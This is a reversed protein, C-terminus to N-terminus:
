AHFGFRAGNKDVEWLKRVARNALIAQRKMKIMEPTALKGPIGLDRKFRQRVFSDTLLACKRIGYENVREKNDKNYKKM